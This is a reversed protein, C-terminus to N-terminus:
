IKEKLGLVQVTINTPASLFFEGAKDAAIPFYGAPIMFAPGDAVTRLQLPSACYLYFAGGEPFDGVPPFPQPEETVEFHTVKGPQIYDGVPDPGDSNPTKIARM